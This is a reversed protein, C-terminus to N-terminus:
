REHGLRSTRAPLSDRAPSGSPRRAGASPPPILGRRTTGPLPEPRARPAFRLGSRNPPLRSSCLCPRHLSTAPSSRGTAGWSMAGSEQRGLAPGFRAYVPNGTDRRSKARRRLLPRVKAFIGGGGSCRERSGTPPYPWGARGLLLGSTMRCSVQAPPPFGKQPPRSGDGPRHWSSGFGAKRGPPTGPDHEVPAPM